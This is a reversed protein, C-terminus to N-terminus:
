NDRSHEERLYKDIDDLKDEIRIQQREIKEELRTDAKRRLGAEDSVEAAVRSEIYGVAGAIAL